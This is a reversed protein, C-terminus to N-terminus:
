WSTVEALGGPEIEIWKEVRDRTDPNHLTV